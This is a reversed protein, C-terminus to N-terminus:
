FYLHGGRPCLRFLSTLPHFSVSVSLKINELDYKDFWVCWKTKGYGYVNCQIVTVKLVQALLFGGWYSPMTIPVHKKNSRCCSCGGTLTRDTWHPCVYVRCQSANMKLFRLGQKIFTKMQGQAGDHVSSKQEVISFFFRGLHSTHNLRSRSDWPDLPLIRFVTASKIFTAGVHHSLKQFFVGNHKSLNVGNVLQLHFRMGNKNDNWFLKM